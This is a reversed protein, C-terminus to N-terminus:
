SPQDASGIHRVLCHQILGSSGIDEESDQLAPTITVLRKVGQNKGDLQKGNMANITIRAESPCDMEM